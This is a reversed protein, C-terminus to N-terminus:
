KFHKIWDNVTMFYNNKDVSVIKYIMYTGDNREGFYATLRVNDVDFEQIWINLYEDNFNKNLEELMEPKEDRKIEYFQINNTETTPVLGELSLFGSIKVSPPYYVMSALLTEPAEFAKFLPEYMDQSVTSLQNLIVLDNQYAKLEMGEDSQYSHTKFYENLFNLAEEWDGASIMPIITNKANALVTEDVTEKVSEEEDTKSVDYPTEDTSVFDSAEEDEIKTADKSKDKNFLFLGFFVSLTIVLIVAILIILFIKNKKNDV